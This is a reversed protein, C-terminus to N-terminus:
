ARSAPASEVLDRAHPAHRRGEGLVVPALRLNEDGLEALVAMVAALLDDGRGKRIKAELDDDAIEERRRLFHGLAGGLLIHMDDADVGHGGAM